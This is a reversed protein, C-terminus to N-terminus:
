PNRPSTPLSDLFRRLAVAAARHVIESPHPDGPHVVLSGELAEATLATGTDFVPIDDPGLGEALARALIGWGEDDPGTRLLAVVLRGGQERVALNLARLDKISGQFDEVGLGKWAALLSGWVPLLRSWRGALEGPGGPNRFGAERHHQNARPSVVALVLDPDYRHATREFLLRQEWTGYGPVGCNVVERDRDDPRAHRLLTAFTDQERVGVGMAFGDGLVLIRDVGAPKPDVVDPGRCGFADFRYSVFYRELPVDPELPQGARGFLEVRSLEIVGTQRAMGFWIRGNADAKPPTFILRFDEWAPTLDIEHYLGLGDWPPHAQGYALPLRRAPVARARFQLRYPIGAEAILGSKELQVAWFSDPSARQVLVRVLDSDDRPLELHAAASPFLVLKWILERVDPEEFYRRRNDPYVSRLESHPIFRIGLEPDAMATDSWRVARPTPIPEGDPEDSAHPLPLFRTPPTFLGPPAAPNVGAVKEKLPLSSALLGTWEARIMPAARDTLAALAEPGFVLLALGWSVLFAYASPLLRAQALAASLLAALYGLLAALQLLRYPELGPSGALTAAFLLFQTTLLVWAFVLYSTRDARRGRITYFFTLSGLLLGAITELWSPRAIGFLASLLAATLLTGVGPELRDHSFLRSGM